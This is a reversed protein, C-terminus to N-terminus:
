SVVRYLMRVVLDYDGSAPAGTPSWIYVSTNTIIQKDGTDFTVPYVPMERICDQDANLITASSFMPVDAGFMKIELDVNTDYATTGNKFEVTVKICEQYTGVGQASLLYKPSVNLDLVDAADINLVVEQLCVCGNSDNAQAVADEFVVKNTDGDATFVIGYYDGDLASPSLTALDQVKITSM